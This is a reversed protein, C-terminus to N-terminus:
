REYDKNKPHFPIAAIEGNIRAFREPYKFKEMYRRLQEDSLSGFSDTSCDCIFCPGAIIDLIERGPEKLVCREVKWGDKGGHEDAM